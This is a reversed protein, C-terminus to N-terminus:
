GPGAWGEVRPFSRSHFQTSVGSVARIRKGDVRVFVWQDAAPWSVLLWHGDPSWTVGSFPGAGAFLRRATRRPRQADLLALESGRLVAIHRGDPSFRAAVFNRGHSPITVRTGHAVDVLDLSLPHVVLARRGNPSWEVDLVDAASGVQARSLVRGSVADQLRLQNGRLVTLAFTAGPRWALLGTRPSLLRDGRGDGAVVRIGTRDVYAIRTDTQSGAWLPSRVDPRALSWRVIGNPELAALENGRAAVVYRGFPSWSATRYRGLLRRSGEQQVVWIGPDSHVLVRGPAPLSFLAPAAHEVGVAERIQDLVAKGPPSFAAGIIALAVALAIAVAVHRSRRTTPTREAFAAQLTAWTRERADHEDPIEIHELERRV